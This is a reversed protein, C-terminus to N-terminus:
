SGAPSRALRTVLLDAVAQQEGARPHYFLAVGAESHKGQIWADKACIDHGRTAAYVDVYEAGTAAAVERIQTNLRRLVQDAFGVDGDALGLRDFCGGSTPFIAPYGVMLVRAKPSRRHIQRIATTLGAREQDIRNVLTAAATRADLERCPSGKPNSARLGPCGLLLAVSVTPNAGLGVTVLDTSPKLADFQPPVGAAQPRTLDLVDASSCSRDDLPVGLRAALLSPYNRSSRGCMGGSQTPVGPAATYSDGLAVYSSYHPAPQPTPEPSPGATGCGSLAVLALVLAALTGGPVRIRSM